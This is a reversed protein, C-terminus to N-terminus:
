AHAKEKKYAREKEAKQYEAEEAERLKREEATEDAKAARSPTDASAEDAALVPTIGGTLWAYDGAALAVGTENVWVGGTAATAVGLAVTIATGGIAIAVGVRVFQAIVRANQAAADSSVAWGMTGIAFPAQKDYLVNPFATVGDNTARFATKPTAGILSQSIM